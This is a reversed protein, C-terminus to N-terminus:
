RTAARRRCGGSRTPPQAGPGVADPHAMPIFRDPYTGCWEDIHWDNYARVVALALDKDETALSCAVALVVPFSPFCMRALVGGASMDKVREHIDWCGPRMEDYSTPEVGYEEKPRGAM